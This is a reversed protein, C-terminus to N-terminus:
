WGVFNIVLMARESYNGGMKCADRYDLVPMACRIVEWLAPM